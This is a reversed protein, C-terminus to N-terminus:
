KSKVHKHEQSDLFALIAERKQIFANTEVLSERVRPRSFPIDLIQGVTAAPGNTMMVVRDSLLVAEDVDHTVMIATVSDERWVDLLVDQLELRTLADLMGFPEDLLLLKPRLAFARALGVRQQMGQSLESPKKNLARGLGVLKLYHAASDIRQQRSDNPRVQEVGLLVNELATMWPLLNPSQFVVARDPGADKVEKHDLVLGGSTVTHLGAIMQLVTSKGCGSHGIISVFEGEKIICNFDIVAVFEGKPTPFKKTLRWCELYRDRRTHEIPNSATIM